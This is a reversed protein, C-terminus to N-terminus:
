PKTIQLTDIQDDETNLYIYFWTNTEQFSTDSTSLIELGDRKITIGLKHTKITYTHPNRDVPTSDSDLESEAPEHIFLQSELNTVRFRFLTSWEEDMMFILEFVSDVSVVATITTGEFPEQLDIYALGSDGVAQGTGNLLIDGEDLEYRSEDPVIDPRHEALSTDGEGDFNDLFITTSPESEAGPRPNLVPLYVAYPMRRIVPRASCVLTLLLLTILIEKM